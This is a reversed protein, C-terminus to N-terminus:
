KAQHAAISSRSEDNCSDLALRLSLCINVQVSVRDFAFQRDKTEETERGQGVVPRSDPTHASDKCM